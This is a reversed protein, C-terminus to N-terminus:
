FYIGMRMLAGKFAKKSNGEFLDMTEQLVNRDSSEYVEMETGDKSIWIQDGISENNDGNEIGLSIFSSDKVWGNLTKFKM